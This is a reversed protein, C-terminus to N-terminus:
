RISSLPSKLNWIGSSKMRNCINRSIRKLAIEDFYIFLYIFSYIFLLTAKPKFFILKFSIITAKIKPHDFFLIHIYDLWLSKLTKTAWNKGYILLHAM